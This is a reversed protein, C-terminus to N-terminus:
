RQIPGSLDTADQRLVNWSKLPDLDSIISVMTYDIPSPLVPVSPFPPAYVLCFSGRERRGRAGPAGRAASAKERDLGQM